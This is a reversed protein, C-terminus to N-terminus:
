KIGGPLSAARLRILQERRSGTLYQDAARLAVDTSEYAPYTVPSVDRLEAFSIHTTITKGDEARSYAAEGPRFAFSAGTIDGREVLTRLDRGVTTDPLDIEFALGTSDEALRLTGSSQRGLLQSPEHNLLARVDSGSLARGFAGTAISEYGRGIKALTGFVAAHGRLTNGSMEARTEIWFRQLTATTM